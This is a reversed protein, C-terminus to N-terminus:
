LRYKARARKPRDARVKSTPITTDTTTRDCLAKLELVWETVVAPQGGQSVTKKFVVIDARGDELVPEARLQHAVFVGRLNDLLRGQIKEEPREVPIGKTPNKWIRPAHGEAILAPTRLAREFFRDLTAKMQDISIPVGEFVVNEYESDDLGSKYLAGLPHGSRWDVVLAPLAGLRCNRIVQFLSAADTWQVKVDFCTSVSSTTLWVHGSIPEFGNKLLPVEEAACHSVDSSLAESQLFVAFDGEEAKQSRMIVLDAVRRVFRTTLSAGAEAAAELNGAAGEIQSISIGGISL